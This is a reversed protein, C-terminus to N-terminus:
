QKIDQAWPYGTAGGGGGGGGTPGLDAWAPEMFPEYEEHWVESEVCFSVLFVTAHRTQGYM